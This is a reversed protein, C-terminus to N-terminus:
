MDIGRIWTVQFNLIPLDNIPSPDNQSVVLQYSDSLHKDDFTTSAPLTDGYMKLLAPDEIAFYIPIKYSQQFFHVELDHWKNSDQKSDQEPFLLLVAEANRSILTDLLDLSFDVLRIIAARQQYDNDLSNSTISQALLNFSAKQSGYSINAREMHFLSHVDAVHIAEGLLCNLLLVM